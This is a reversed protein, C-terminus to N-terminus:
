KLKMLSKYKIEANIWDENCDIDQVLNNPIVIPITDNSYFRMKKLYKKADAWYFQGVDHYTDPLDQSRVSFYKPSTM